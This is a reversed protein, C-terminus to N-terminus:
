VLGRGGRDHEVPQRPAAGVRGPTPGVARLRPESYFQKVWRRFEGLLHDSECLVPDPRYIKNEWIPYDQQVGMLLMQLFEEGLTDALDDGTTLLWRSHTHHTDIPSTSTYLLLGSDGFGRLRVASIGLGWTDREITVEVTGYPTDRTHQSVVRLFRGDEGYSIEHEDTAAFEHVYRFHEPDCNNEAMEQMHVGVRHDIQRPVTWGEAGIEPMVPVEWSPPEGEAHRWVMIMDNRERVEWARARARPPIRSCYPITTCAGDTGFQWGHFPCRVTEGMVRGGEALHAGLHPCYADLVAAEGSRTRFVVLDEGFYHIRKVTGPQVESSWAVAFWGNPLPLETHHNGPLKM